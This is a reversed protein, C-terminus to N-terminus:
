MYILMLVLKMVGVHVGLNKNCTYMCMYTIRSLAACGNM